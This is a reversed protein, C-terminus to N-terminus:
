WSLDGDGCFPYSIGSPTYIKCNKCILFSYKNEKSSWRWVKEMRKGCSYCYLLPAKVLLIARFLFCLVIASLIWGGVIGGLHFFIHLWGIALLILFEVGARKYRRQYKVMAALHRNEISYEKDPYKIKDFSDM